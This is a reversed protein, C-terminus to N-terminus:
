AQNGLISTQNDAMYPQNAAMNPQNAAMNPQNGWGVMQLQGQGIKADCLNQYHSFVVLCGYVTMIFLAGWYIWVLAIGVTMVRDGNIVLQGRAAIDAIGAVDVVTVYIYIVLAAVTCVITVIVWTLVLPRWAKVIGIILLIHNILTVIYVILLAVNAPLVSGSLSNVWAAHSNYGLGILSLIIWIAAVVISGTKVDCGCGCCSRQLIAM